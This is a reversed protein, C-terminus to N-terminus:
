WNRIIEAYKEQIQMKTGWEMSLKQVKELIRRGEQGEALQPFGKRSRPAHFNLQVPYLRMWKLHGEEMGLKVLVTEYCDPDKEGLIGGQNERYDFGDATVAEEGLNGFKEYFEAPAREILECQYFFNGLGHLIPKGHYIEIGRLVHPGHGIYIDAGEDMCIRPLERQFDALEKKQMGKYEHSHCSVIVMDAQRKAEHISKKLREVDRQKAFTKTSGEGVQFLGTGFRVIGRGELEPDLKQKKNVETKKMIEELAAMEEKRIQHVAWYGIGNVGPRGVFDRRQEGAQHWEEFSTTVAIMAVRGHATDLYCPRSAEYLNRGLGAFVMGQYELNELTRIVGRHGWDFSHNNPLAYLNFGFKSLDSLVEPSTAIWDGGSFRNPYIDAEYRHVSAELNTFRVDADKMINRIDKLEKRDEPLKTVALTDGAATMIIEKEMTKEESFVLVSVGTRTEYNGTKINVIIQM